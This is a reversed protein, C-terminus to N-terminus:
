CREHLEGKHRCGAAGLIARRVRCFKHFFFCLTHWFAQKAIDQKIKLMIKEFTRTPVGARFEFDGIKLM